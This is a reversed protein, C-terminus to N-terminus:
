RPRGWGASREPELANNVIKDFEVVEDCEYRLDYRRLRQLAYHLPYFGNHDLQNVFIPFHYLM